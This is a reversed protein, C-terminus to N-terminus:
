AASPPNVLGLDEITLGLQSVAAAAHGFAAATVGFTTSMDRLARCRRRMMRENPTFGAREWAAEIKQQLEDM